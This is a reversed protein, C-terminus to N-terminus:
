GGLIIPLVLAMVVVLTWLAPASTLLQEKRHAVRAAEAHSRPIWWPNQRAELLHFVVGLGAGYALHGILNAFLGAAATATWMPSAGLLLPMLTLPGLIWWFFGYAVGWGLGSSLDYSQRRFLVGYAAGIVLAIGLNVVLGTTASNSGILRAVTPLFGIRLMVASFLLGGALGALAGRALARLGEIGLGEQDRGMRIDAFLLRVLGDLWQYAVAVAAGLLLYGPLMAFAVRAQELSWILGRGEILPLLTLAGGVWVVFGYTTGRVLGPGVGELPRPYFLAFIVGASLGLPMTVPSADVLRGLLWTGILGALAGRALAGPTVGYESHRTRRIAALALGTSVGYILHGLLSAFAEQASHVDWALFGGTLLPMLTLPGLFWWLAGYTLGWFLAEGGGSRQYRMLVGFGAGLVAAVTVHMLFDVLVSDARVLSATAPLAGIRSLAAGSIVGGILGALAGPLLGQRTFDRLMM